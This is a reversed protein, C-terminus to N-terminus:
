IGGFTSGTELFKKLTKIHVFKSCLVPYFYIYCSLTATKM